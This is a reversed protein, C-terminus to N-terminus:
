IKRLKNKTQGRRQLWAFFYFLGLIFLPTSVVIIWSPHQLAGITYYLAIGCYGITAILERQLALVFIVLLVFTPILNMFLDPLIEPFSRTENISDLAFTAVFIIFLITCGRAIALMPSIGELKM